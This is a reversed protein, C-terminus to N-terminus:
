ACAAIADAEQKLALIVPALKIAEPRTGFIVSIKMKKEMVRRRVKFCQRPNSAFVDSM